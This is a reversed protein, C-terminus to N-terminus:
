NVTITGARIVQANTAVLDSTAGNLLIATVNIVAPAADYALKALISYPMPAGVPLAEIYAEIATAVPGVAALHLAATACVITLSVNALYATAGLVVAISGIPRVAAVADAILTLLATGIAGSGDDAYVVFTGPQYIGGATQNETISFTLGQQVSEIAYAVAAPTALSRTALYLQFRTRLAADTEANIGNAYALGNTVTDVGPIASALLGIAGALVNGMTGAVTSQVSVTVTPVGAGLVYGNLAFSWAPNNANEIVNFIMTGDLTKVQAGLPILASSLTFRGFTVLGYAAAGPLRYVSFDAMWSDLDPGISTAARTLALLM